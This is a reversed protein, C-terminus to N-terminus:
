NPFGPTARAKLQAMRKLPDMADYDVGTSRYTIPEGERPQAM